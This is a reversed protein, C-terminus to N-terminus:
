QQRLTLACAHTDSVACCPCVSQLATKRQLLGRRVGAPQSYLHQLIHTCACGLQCARLWDVECHDPTGLCDSVERRPAVGGQQPGGGGKWIGECCSVPDGVSM